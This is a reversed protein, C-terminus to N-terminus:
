PKNALFYEAEGKGWNPDLASKTKYIKFQDLSKQFLELGRAKSGGFQEPTFYTDEAKMLTIRPNGADIKEAKSLADAALMGESMFRAQPDVMMKLGHIMKQLILNEANDKNLDIALDLSKQAEAAIPDLDALKGERMAMRGKQITSFAAYYYPLWQTKEKDGIRKFDNALATFEDATQHKEISAIKETMVKDYATQSFAIIGTMLCMAFILKKM